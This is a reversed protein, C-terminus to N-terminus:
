TALRGTTPAPGGTAPLLIRPTWRSRIIPREVLWYSASASAIALATVVLFFWIWTFDFLPDGTWVLFMHIWAEHWLYIGYSVVGIGVMPKSRLLRRILGREQPGFVAPAVVCIAFLGYLEQRGLSSLLSDNTVPLRSLGIHSVAVLAALALAWCAWPTARHWLLAPKQGTVEYYVSGVALLMGLAFMDLFGPLWNPMTNVVGKSHPGDALLVPIRWAFSIVTLAALGFLEARLTAGPARRGAPSRGVPDDGVQGRGVPNRGATHRHWQESAVLAGYLPLMLYFTMEVDLSWAQSLGHLVYHPFYIQAFGLFILPAYWTHGTTDADLVYTAVLFAVWYAPIIRKLRRYWFQRLDPTPRTSFHAAVFPRYLLFGSIVFFVEVGIELRATYEGFSHNRTTFGAVFTTHVCIVLLAAIARLGDFCPFRAGKAPAVASPSAASPAVASPASAASPGVASPASPGAASPAPDPRAATPRRPITRLKVEHAM